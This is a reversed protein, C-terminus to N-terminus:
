PRPGRVREKQDRRSGRARAPADSGRGANEPNSNERYHGRNGKARRVRRRRGQNARCRRRGAQSRAVRGRPRQGRRRRRPTFELRARLLRELAANSEKGGISDADGATKRINKTITQAKDAVIEGLANIAATSEATATAWESKVTDVISGLAAKIGGKDAVMQALRAPELLYIGHVVAVIKDYIERLQISLSGIFLIVSKVADGAAEGFGRWGSPGISKALGESIDSLAPVLGETFQMQVGRAALKLDAMSAEAQKMRKIGQEDLALGYQELKAKLNDFGQAGLEDIVPLLEAGAKGFLAIAISTRKAGPEMKALAETVKNLRAEDPLGKLADSNGFLEKIANKAKVSGAELDGMSKQFKILGKTVVEQDIGIQQAALGYVQLTEAAFGTKQSAKEISTAYEISTEVGRKMTEFVKMASELALYEVALNQAAEKLDKFGERAASKASRNAKDTEEQVRRFANIVEAQGEASLRVRVDRTPM